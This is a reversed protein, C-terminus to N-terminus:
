KSMHVQVQPFPIEIGQENFAKYVKDNMDFYVAWYDPSKVWARVVINVSSDALASVATFLEPDKFIREDQSALNAIIERAKDTSTGYGVGFTWDVRRKDETSYNIMSNTALQGNPIIITKFDPTNLITNFIQIEKVTGTYGSAEIVDGVKYPKFILIMVGGALNQLTGSMAMGIAIGAAGLFAIFSTMEVGLTGLVSLVLMIKLLTNILSKMFPKLSPDLHRKEMVTNLGRVVGRIVWLGIVWVAIAVLLRGGVTYGWTRALEILQNPDTSLGVSELENM